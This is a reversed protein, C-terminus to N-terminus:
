HRDAIPTSASDASSRGTILVIQCSSGKSPRRLLGALGAAGAPSAAVGIRALECAASLLEEDSVEYVEGGSRRVAGLAGEGHLAQWNCLAVNAPTERIAAPSLPIHLTRQAYSRAISNNGRSTVAFIRTAPREVVCSEIGRITTGNGTPVWLDVSGASRPDSLAHATRRAVSEIFSRSFPGNVNADAIDTHGDAWLKSMAVSEEYSDGQVRVTVPYSAIEPPVAFSTRRPIFLTTRFGREAAAIAVALGYGGCSGVTVGSYRNPIRRIV